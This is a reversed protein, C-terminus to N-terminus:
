EAGMGSNQPFMGSCLPSHQSSFSLPRKDIELQFKLSFFYVHTFMGRAKDCPLSDKPFLLDEAVYNFNMSSKGRKPFLISNVKIIGSAQMNKKNRKHRELGRFIVSDGHFGQPESLITLLKFFILYIKCFINM